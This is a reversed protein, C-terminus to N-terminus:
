LRQVDLAQLLQAEFDVDNRDDRPGVAQGLVLFLLQLFANQVLQVM